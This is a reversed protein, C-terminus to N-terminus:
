TTNRKGVRRDRGEGSTQLESASKWRRLTAGVDVVQEEGNGEKAALHVCGGGSDDDYSTPHVVVDARQSSSCRVEPKSADDVSGQRFFASNCFASMLMERSSRPQRPYNGVGGGGGGGRGGGGGLGGHSTMMEPEYFLEAEPTPRIMLADSGDAYIGCVFVSDLSEKGSTSSSPHSSLPVHFFRFSLNLSEHVLKSVAPASLQHGYGASTAMGRGGAANQHRGGGGHSTMSVMGKTRCRTEAALRRRASLPSAVDINSDSSTM